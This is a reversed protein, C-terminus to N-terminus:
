GRACYLGAARTTVTGRGTSPPRMPPAARRSVARSSQHVLSILSRDYDADPRAPASLEACPGRSFTARTYVLTPRARAATAAAPASTLPHPLGTCAPDAIMTPSVATGSSCTWDCTPVSSARTGASCRWCSVAGVSARSMTM